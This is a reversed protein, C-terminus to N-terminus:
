MRFPIFFSRWPGAGATVVRWRLFQFKEKEKPLFSLTPTHAVHLVRIHLPVAFNPSYFIANKEIQKTLIIVFNYLINKTLSKADNPAIANRGDHWRSHIVTGNRAVVM